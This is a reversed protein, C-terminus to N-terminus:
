PEPDYPIPLQRYTPDNAAPRENRLLNAQVMRPNVKRSGDVDDWTDWIYRHPEFLHWTFIRDEGWMEGYLIIDFEFDALPHGTHEHCRNCSVENVPILGMDYGKPVIGFDATSSPAYTELSGHEKWVAGEVSQFAPGTLLEALLAKDAIEPVLDLAGRIEPFVKHYAESTMSAPQLNSGDQLHRVVRALNTDSEWGPRKAVIASALEAATRYPRFMDVAWGDLYRTRTRLEFVLWRGDPARQYLVEGFVTGVPFVWHWRGRSSKKWWKVPLPRGAQKPPAWFNFVKVNTVKDTGAATRFPAKFRFDPGFYGLLKGIVNDRNREGVKRGVCNARGGTVTEVSDQYLFVMSEEDYWMTDAANMVAQTAPDDVRPLADKFPRLVDPKVFEVYGDRTALTPDLARPECPAAEPAGWAIGGFCLVACALIARVVM